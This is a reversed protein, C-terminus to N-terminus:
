YNVGAVLQITMDDATAAIAASDYIRITWGTAMSVNSPLPIILEGNVATSERVQHGPVLLYKVTTSAAQVAGASINFLETASDDAIIIELRRNGVDATTALTVQGYLLQYDDGPPVTLTKDSDDATAESIVRIEDFKM